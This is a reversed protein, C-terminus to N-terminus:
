VENLEVELDADIVAKDGGPMRESYPSLPFQSSALESRQVSILLHGPPVKHSLM